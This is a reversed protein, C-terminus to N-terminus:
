KLLTKLILEIRMKVTNMSTNMCIIWDQSLSYKILVMLQLPMCTLMLAVLSHLPRDKKTKKKIGFIIVVVLLIIILVLVTAIAVFIINTTATESTDSTTPNIGTDSSYRLIGVSYNLNEGVYVQLIM